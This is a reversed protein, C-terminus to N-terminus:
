SDQNLLIEAVANRADTYGALRIRCKIQRKKTYMQRKYFIGIM